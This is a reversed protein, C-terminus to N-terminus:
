KSKDEVEKLKEIVKQWQEISPANTTMAAEFGAFWAKYENITM